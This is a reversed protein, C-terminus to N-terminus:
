ARPYNRQEYLSIATGINEIAELDNAQTARILRQRESTIFPDRMTRKIREASRYARRRLSLPKDEDNYTRYLEILDSERSMDM